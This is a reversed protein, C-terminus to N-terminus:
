IADATAPQRQEDRLRQVYATLADAPIRRAGLMKVSELDGTALLKFVTRQSCALRQAVEPITYLLQPPSEM